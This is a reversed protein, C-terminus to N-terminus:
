FPINDEPPEKRHAIRRKLEVIRAPAIYVYEVVARFFEDILETDLISISQEDSHVGANGIQRILDTMESLTSPLVGMNTLSELQQFLNRDTAGKDQCLVELAKRIQGAYAHPARVRITAAEIYTKRVQEPVSDSLDLSTPYIQPLNHLNDNDVVVEYDGLLSLHECTECQVVCYRFPEYHTLWDQSWDGDGVKGWVVGDEWLKTTTAQYVVNCTAM